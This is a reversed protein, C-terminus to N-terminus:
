MQERMSSLMNVTNRMKLEKVEALIILGTYKRTLAGDTLGLCM